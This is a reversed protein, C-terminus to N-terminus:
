RTRRNSRSRYRHCTLVRRQMWSLALGSGIVDLSADFSPPGIVGTEVYSGTAGSVPDSVTLTVNVLSPFSHEIICGDGTTGDGFDWHCDVDPVINGADIAYGYFRLSNDNCRVPEYVPVAILPAPEDWSETSPDRRRRSTM